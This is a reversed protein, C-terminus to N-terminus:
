QSCIYVEELYATNKNTCTQLVSVSTQEPSNTPANRSWKLGQLEREKEQGRM